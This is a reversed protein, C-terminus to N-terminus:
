ATPDFMQPMFRGFAKAAQLTYKTFVERDDASFRLWGYLDLAKKDYLSLTGLVRGDRILGMSMVSGAPLAEDGYGPSGALDNVLLVDRRQFAEVAVREDLAVVRGLHETGRLSFSGVLKLGAGEDSVTRLVASEAEMILCANTVTIRALEELSDADALDFSTESIATLKVSQIRLKEQELSKGLEETLISGITRMGETEGTLKDKDAILHLFLLGVLEGDIAIPEALYWKRTGSQRDKVDLCVTRRSRLVKRALYDNLRLAKGALLGLQFSSSAKVLFSRTEHEYAYYNAIEGGFTNVIKLLLLNLREEFPEPRGLISRVDELLSQAFSTESTRECLTSTRIIDATFSALSRMYALDSEDFTGGPRTRNVSIVGVAEEGIILPCCISAQRDDREYDPGKRDRSLTGTILVPERTRVVKGAIGTGVRQATSTVVEPEIGEAMEIRLHRKRPDLLMISGTDAKVTRAAVSLVLKLLEDRNNSLLIAQRIEQLSSLIQRRDVAQRELEGRSGALFLIRASLIGIVDVDELDMAKLREAITSSGTADVVVDLGPMSKLVALDELEPNLLRQVRVAGCDLLAALLAASERNIGVIAIAPQQAQLPM